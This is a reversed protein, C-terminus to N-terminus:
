AGVLKHSLLAYLVAQVIPQHNAAQRLVASRPGDLLEAAAPEQKDAESETETAGATWAIAPGAYAAAALGAAGCLLDKRTMTFRTSENM